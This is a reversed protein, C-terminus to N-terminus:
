RRREGGSNDGEGGEESSEPGLKIVNILEINSSGVLDDLVEKITRVIGPVIGAGTIAGVRSTFMVTNGGGRGKNDIVDVGWGVEEM